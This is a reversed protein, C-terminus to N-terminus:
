DLTKLHIPIYKATIENALVHIHKMNNCTIYHVSVVNQIEMSSM